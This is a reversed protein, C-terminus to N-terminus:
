CSARREARATSGHSVSSTSKNQVPVLYKATLFCIKSGSSLADFNMPVLEKASLAVTILLKAWNAHGASKPSNVGETATFGRSAIQLWRYSVNAVSTGFYSYRPVYWPTLPNSHSGSVSIRFLKLSNGSSTRWANPFKM